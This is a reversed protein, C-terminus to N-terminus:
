PHLMKKIKNLFLPLEFPKVIYEGIGKEFSDQISINDDAESVMMLPIQNYLRKFSKIFSFSDQPHNFGLVVLEPTNLKAEALAESTNEVVFVEYGFVRLREAIFQTYAPDQDILLIKRKSVAVTNGGKSDVTHGTEKLALCARTCPPAM